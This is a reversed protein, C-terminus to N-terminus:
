GSESLVAMAKRKADPSLRYTRDGKVTKKKFTLDLNECYIGTQRAWKELAIPIGRGSTRLFSVVERAPVWGQGNCFSQLLTNEGEVTSWASDNATGQGYRKVLQDLTEWDGVEFKMEGIWVSLKM